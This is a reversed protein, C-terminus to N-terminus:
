LAAAVNVANKFQQMEKWVDEPDAPRIGCKV